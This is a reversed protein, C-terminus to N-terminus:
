WEVGRQYHGCSLCHLGDALALLNGSCKVCGKGGNTDSVREVHDRNFHWNWHGIWANAITRWTLPTQMANKRIYEMYDSNKTLELIMRATREVTSQETHAGPVFFGNYGHQILEPFVGVPSALVLCGARMSENIGPGGAEKIAQLHIAFNMKFLWRALAKQGLMGHDIVGAESRVPDACDGWLQNGGFIHLTFRPDSERLLRIVRIASDLGKQPHGAYVVNFPNRKRIVSGNFNEEPIGRYCTFSPQNMGQHDRQIIERSFNSPYYIYDFKQLITNKPLQIGHIMLIKLEADIPIEALCGLDFSGGSSSAIFIDAKVQKVKSFHQYYVGQLLGSHPCHNMMTVKNGIKAFEHALRIRATIGGGVGKRQLTAINYQIHSDPCFICVNYTSM